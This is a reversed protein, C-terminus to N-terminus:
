KQTETVMGLKLTAIPFHGKKDSKGNKEHQSAMKRMSEQSGPQFREIVKPEERVRAGVETAM